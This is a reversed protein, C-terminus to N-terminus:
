YIYMVIKERFYRVINNFAFLAKNCGGVARFGFQNAHSSFLHGFRLSILSEFIKAIISIMSVPRYNCVDNLSRSANKVVPTIVSNDFKKPVGHVVNREKTVCCSYLLLFQLISSFM